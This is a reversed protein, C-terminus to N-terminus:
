SFHHRKNMCQLHPHATRALQHGQPTTLFPLPNTVLASTAEQDLLPTLLLPTPLGLQCSRELQMTPM